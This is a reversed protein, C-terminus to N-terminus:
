SKNDTGIELASEFVDIVNGVEDSLYQGNDGIAEGCNNLLSNLMELLLKQNYENM